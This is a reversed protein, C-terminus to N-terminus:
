SENVELLKSFNTRQGFPQLQLSLITSLSGKALADRKYFHIL